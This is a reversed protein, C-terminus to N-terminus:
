LSLICKMNCTKKIEYLISYDNWQWDLGFSLYVDDRSFKISDIKNKKEIKLLHKFTSIYKRYL